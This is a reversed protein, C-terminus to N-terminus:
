CISSFLLMMFNLLLASAALGHKVARFFVSSKHRDTTGKKNDVKEYLISRTRHKKLSYMTYCLVKLKEIQLLLFLQDYFIVILRVRAMFIASPIVLQCKTTGKRKCDYM